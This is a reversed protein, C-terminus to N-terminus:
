FCPRFMEESKHKTKNMYMCQIISLKNLNKKLFGYADMWRHHDMSRLFPNGKPGNPGPFGIGPPGHEGKQGPFGPLGPDGPLGRDGAALLM